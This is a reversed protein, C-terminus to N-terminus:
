LLTRTTDLTSVALPTNRTRSVSGAGPQPRAAYSAMLIQRPQKLLM